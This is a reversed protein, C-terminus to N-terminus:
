YFELSEKFEDYYIKKEDFKDELVIFELKYIKNNNTFYSLIRKKKIKILPAKNIPYYDDYTVVIYNEREEEIKGNELSDIIKKEVNFFRELEYPAKKPPTFYTLSIKTPLIDKNDTQEILDIIYFIKNVPTHEVVRFFDPRVFGVQFDKEKTRYKESYQKKSQPFDHTKQITIDKKILKIRPEHKYFIKLCIFGIALIIILLFIWKKM